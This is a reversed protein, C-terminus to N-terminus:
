KLLPLDSGDSHAVKRHELHLSKAANRRKVQQLRGVIQEFASDLSVKQGIAPPVPDRHQSIARQAAAQQRSSHPCAGNETAVIQPAGVGFEELRPERLIQRGDVPEIPESLLTEALTNNVERNTPHKVLADGGSQPSGAM